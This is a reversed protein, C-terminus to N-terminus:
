RRRKKYGREKKKKTSNNWTGNDLGRKINSGRKSMKDKQFEAWRGTIDNLYQFGQVRWLSQEWVVLTTGFGM